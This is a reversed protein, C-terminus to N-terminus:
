RFQVKRRACQYLAMGFTRFDLFFEDRRVKFLDLFCNPLPKNPILLDSLSLSLLQFAESM